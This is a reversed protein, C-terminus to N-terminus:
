SPPGWRRACGRSSRLAPPTKVIRAIVTLDHDVDEDRGLLFAGLRDDAGPEFLYAVPDLLVVRQDLQFGVLDGHFHGGRRRSHQPFDQEVRIIFGHRAGHEAPDCGHRLNATVLRACPLPFREPQAQRLGRKGGL